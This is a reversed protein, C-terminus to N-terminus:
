SEQNNNKTASSKLLESLSTGNYLCNSDMSDAIGNVISKIQNDVSDTTNQIYQNPDNFYIRGNVFSVKTQGDELIYPVSVTEETFKTDSPIEMNLFENISDTNVDYGNPNNYKYFQRIQTESLNSEEEDTSKDSTRLLYEVNPIMLIDDEDLSFPNSIGSYKLIFETYEDTGYEMFSIRDPRMVYTKTLKKLIYSTPVGLYNRFVSKALDVLRNGKNDTTIPKEDLTKSFM